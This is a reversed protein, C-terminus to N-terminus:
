LLFMLLSFRDPLALNLVYKTQGSHVSTSRRKHNAILCLNTVLVCLPITISICFLAPLKLMYIIYKQHILLGM